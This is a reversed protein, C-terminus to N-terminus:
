RVPAQRLIPPRCVRCPSLGQAFAEVLPILRADDRAEALSCETRHYSDKGVLVFDPEPAAMHAAVPAAVMPSGGTRGALRELAAEILARDQRQNQVVIMASGVVVLALGTLGGSIFYPFQELVTDNSAAGNWGFFIAVFGLICLGVGLQGGLRPGGFGSNNM